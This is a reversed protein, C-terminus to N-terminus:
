PKFTFNFNGVLKVDLGYTDYFTVLEPQSVTSFRMRIIVHKSEPLRDLKDEPLDIIIRSEVPEDVKGEANLSPAMVISPILLTDLTSFNSDLMILSPEGVLPFGNDVIMTLTGYNISEVTNGQGLDWALTDQLIIDDARARMPIDVRILAQFPSDYYFFDNGASVNGLPNLIMNFAFNLEDPLNEIFEKVNSNANDLHYDYQIAQVGSASGTLDQARGLLIPDGIIEHNLIVSNDSRTNSGGLENLQFIGDMGVGNIITLDVTASDLFLSGAVINSMGNLTTTDNETNLEEQGFYGLGYDPIIEAFTYELDLIPTNAPLSVTPGEPDTTVSYTSNLVNASTGNEGTLDFTYGALDVTREFNNNPAVDIWESLQLTEGNKTASAVTYDFRVRTAMENNFKIILKGSRVRVTKVSRGDLEYVTNDPQPPITFGPPVELAFLFKFEKSITTDPIGLISDIPLDILDREILLRLKGDSDSTLVTDNLLDGLDLSTTIVPVLLDVDWETNGIDQKCSQFLTACLLTIPIFYKM